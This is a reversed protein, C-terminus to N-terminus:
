NWPVGAGSRLRHTRPAHAPAGRQRQGGGSLSPLAGRAMGRQRRCVSSQGTSRPVAPRATAHLRRQRRKTACRHRQRSSGTPWSRSVATPRRWRRGRRRPRARRRRHSSCCAVLAGGVSERRSGGRKARCRAVAARDRKAGRAPPGRGAGRAAAAGGAGGGQGGGAGRAHHGLQHGGAAGALAVCARVGCSRRRSAAGAADREQRM